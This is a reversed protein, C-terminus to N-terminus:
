PILKSIISGEQLHAPPNVTSVVAQSRGPRASAPPFCDEEPSFLVSVVVAVVVVGQYQIDISPNFITYVRLQSNPTPNTRRFRLESIADSNM